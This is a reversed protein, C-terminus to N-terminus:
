RWFKFPFSRKKPPLPPPSSDQYAQKEKRQIELEFRDLLQRFEQLVMWHAQLEAPIDEPNIGAILRGPQSTQPPTPEIGLVSTSLVEATLSLSYPQHEPLRVPSVQPLRLDGKEDFSVWVEHGAAEPWADLPFTFGSEEPHGETVLDPRYDGCALPRPPLGQAQLWITVPGGLRSYCWGQLHGGNPSLGDFHGILGRFTASLATRLREETTPADAGRLTVPCSVQGDATIALLSVTDSAAPIPHSDPINLSFGFNGSRGVHVAVDPRNGDIPASAILQSGSVLRVECFPIDPHFIWGTILTPSITDISGQLAALAKKKQRAQWPWITRVL